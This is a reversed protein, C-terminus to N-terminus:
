NRRGFRIIFYCIHHLRYADGKQQLCDLKKQINQHTNLTHTICWGIFDTVRWLMKVYVRGTKKKVQTASRAKWDWPASLMFVNGAGPCVAKM